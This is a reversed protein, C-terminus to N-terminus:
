NVIVKRIETKGEKELEIFYEENTGPGAPPVGAPAFGNNVNNISVPIDTEPVLAINYNNYLGSDPRPGTVFFGFVDNFTSGVWESYEESGFVFRCKVTDNLPVFDFELVSADYTTATTLFNLLPHGDM